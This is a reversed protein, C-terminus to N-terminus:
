ASEHGRVAEDHAKLGRMPWWNHDYFWKPVRWLGLRDLTQWPILAALTM